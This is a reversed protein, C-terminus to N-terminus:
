ARRRGGRLRRGPAGALVVAPGGRSTTRRQARVASERSPFREVAPVSMVGGGLLRPSVLEVAGEGAVLLGGPGDSALVEHAGTAPDVVPLAGDPTEGAGSSQQGTTGGETLVFGAVEDSETARLPGSPVWRNVTPGRLAITGPAPMPVASSSLLRTVSSAQGPRYCSAAHDAARSAAVDQGAPAERTAQGNTGNAQARTTAPRTTTAAVRTPRM